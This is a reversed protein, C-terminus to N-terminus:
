RREPERREPESKPEPDRPSAIEPERPSAIEPERPTYIEPDDPSGVDPIRLEPLPRGGKKEGIIGPRLGSMFSVGEQDLAGASFTPLGMAAEMKETGRQRFPRWGDIGSVGSGHIGVAHVVRVRSTGSFLSKGRLMRLSAGGSIGLVGPCM